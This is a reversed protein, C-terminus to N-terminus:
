EHSDGDLETKVTHTEVRNDFMKAGCNPCYASFASAGHWKYGSEGDCNSCFIDQGKRVWRGYRVPVAEVAEANELARNVVGVPIYVKGDRAIVDGTRVNAKFAEIDFLKM